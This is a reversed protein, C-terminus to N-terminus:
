GSYHQHKRSACVPIGLREISQIAGTDAMTGAFIEPCLAWQPIDNTLQDADLAITTVFVCVSLHGKSPSEAKLRAQSQRMENTLSKLAASALIFSVVCCFL